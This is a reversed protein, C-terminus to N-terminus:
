PAWSHSASRRRRRRRIEPERIADELAERMEEASQFREDPNPELARRITKDLM